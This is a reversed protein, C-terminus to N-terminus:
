DLCISLLGPEGAYTRASSYRWQEPLDVYGRRVPNMHVYDVKQGMMRDNHIRKPQNGEQWFQYKRVSRHPQKNFTLQKLIFGKNQNIYLDICKRASFSKFRSLDHSLDEGSANLHLHNELM